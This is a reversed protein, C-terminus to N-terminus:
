GCMNKDGTRCTKLTETKAKYM